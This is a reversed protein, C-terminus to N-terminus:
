LEATIIFSQANANFMVPNPFGGPVTVSLLCYDRFYYYPNIATPTRPIIGIEDLWNTYPGPPIIVSPNARMPAFSYRLLASGASIMNGAWSFPANVVYLTKRCEYLTDIANAYYKRNMSGINVVVGTIDITGSQHGINGSRIDYTSGGNFWFLVRTFTGVGITKGTISPLKVTSSYLTWGTTLVVRKPPTYVEPSGGVGFIQEVDVSLKMGAVASRAYWSVTVTKGALLGVDEMRTSAVSFNNAGTVSSIVNRRYFGYPIEPIEGVPLAIRSTNKPIGSVDGTWGDIDYGTTTFPGDGRQSVLMNGNTNLPKVAFSASSHTHDARAYENSDGTEDIGSYATPNNRRVNDLPNTSFPM